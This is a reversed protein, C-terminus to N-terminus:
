VEKRLDVDRCGCSQRIVINTKLMIEDETKGTDILEILHKVSVRGVEEIPTRVTTLPPLMRSAYYDDDFGVVAMDTPIRVGFSELAQYVGVASEDDGAFIADFTVGNTLWDAVTQPAIEHRFGGFGILSADVELNHSELAKRYGLERWRSDEETEAGRLFAIRRSGHVEILHSILECTSDKNEVLVHPLVLGSPPIRHMLIVPFKDQVLREIEMDTMAGTLVLLGDTNQEVFGSTIARDAKSTGIELSYGLTRAESEVGRLLALAYQTDLDYLVIGLRKTRRSALGRASGDPIFKLKQIAKQVKQATAESVYSSQNMARSVTSISVGALQAGDEITARQNDHRKNTKPM